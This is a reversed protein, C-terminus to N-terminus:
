AREEAIVKYFTPHLVVGQKGELSPLEEGPPSKFSFQHLMRATLLFVESKALSEGVCHRRGTSFPLYNKNSNSDFKGNEDM